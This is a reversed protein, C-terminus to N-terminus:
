HGFVIYLNVGMEMWLSPHNLVTRFLNFPSVWARYLGNPVGKHSDKHILSDKIPHTVISQSLGYEM